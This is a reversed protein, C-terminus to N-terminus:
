GSIGSKKKAETILARTVIEMSIAFVTEILPYGVMEILIYPRVSIREVRCSKKGKRPRQGFLQTKKFGHAVVDNLKRKSSARVRAGFFYFVNSEAM